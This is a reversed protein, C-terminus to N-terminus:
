CSVFMLIIIWCCYHIVYCNASLEFARVLIRKEEEAKQQEEEAKKKAVKRAEMRLIFKSRLDRPPKVSYKKM